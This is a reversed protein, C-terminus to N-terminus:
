EKKKFQESKTVIVAMGNEFGHDLDEHIRQSCRTAYKNGKRKQLYDEDMKKTIVRKVMASALGEIAVRVFSVLSPAVGAVTDEPSIHNIPFQKYM